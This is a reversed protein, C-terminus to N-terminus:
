KYVKEFFRDVEYFSVPSSYLGKQKDISALGYCELTELRQKLDRVSFYPFPTSPPFEKQLRSAEEHLQALDVAKAHNKITLTLIYLVMRADRPATKLASRPSMCKEALTVDCVKICDKKEHHAIRASQQLYDFLRRASGGCKAAKKAVAVLASETSFFKHYPKLILGFDQYTYPKFVLSPIRPGNDLMTHVRSIEEYKDAGNFIGIFKVFGLCTRAWRSFFNLVVKVNVKRAKPLRLLHDLEDFVIAVSQYYKKEGREELAKIYSDLFRLDFREPITFVTSRRVQEAVNEYLKEPDMFNNCNIKVVTHSGILRKANVEVGKYNLASLTENVLSTKGTGPTGIVFLSGIDDEGKLVNTLVEREDDRAAMLSNAFCRANALTKLSDFPEMAKLKKTVLPIDNTTALVRKNNM